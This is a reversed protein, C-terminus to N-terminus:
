VEVESSSEVPSEDAGKAPEAKRRIRLKLLGFIGVAAIGLVTIEGMTDFGRFDVLIVNVINHGHGLPESNDSFFRKLESILTQDTITLVLTTIIGGAILAVVMDRYWTRRSSYGGMGPLRYLVLVFLIVSLTEIAFQTMALDPAGFLIFIIAIGYGIVGLSVVLVLLSRARMVSILGVVIVLAIVAEHFQINTIRSFTDLPFQIQGRIVFAYVVLFMTAGLITAVYNRLYGNQYIKTLNDAWTPLNAVLRDYLADPGNAPNVLNFVGSLRDRLRFLGFGSVITILSLIFMPSLSEPLIFLHMELESGYVAGASPSTLYESVFHPLLGLVLGLSGLVLPSFWLDIMTRHANEVAKTKTGLFPIIAVLLAVAVFAINTLLAAATLFGEAASLALPEGAEYGLTAEYIFEKGLFGLFLPVGSMSLAALATALSVLPMVRGLGRLLTIDRTGTAHDITGAVMFLTGKYLSHVLLFLVAAEAAIKTDWGLLAVLVGLSSVTSYALIRKLDTQKLSLYGGILMTVVGVVTLLLRWEDSGGLTPSLRALLYVGAKVMTASHLYASVPTPAAMAGPLWFHFPFQASKTFAGLGILVLMPVYLTSARLVENQESLRSIDWSGGVVALIVFGALMALGGSGTVLLAKLAASRSDEYNHKFGILLYSTLSTLEWFIFLGLLNDSLVLGLMAAMFALLFGYMRGLNPNGALYGGAYIVILTGVGTIILVMLLSLGDLMFTLNVNLSPVWQTTERLTEGHAIAPLYSAFYIFLGLPLLALLWGTLRRTAQHIVPAVLALIFGSLVALLM